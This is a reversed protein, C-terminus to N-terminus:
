LSSCRFSGGGFVLIWVIVSVQFLGDMAVIEADVVDHIVESGQGTINM